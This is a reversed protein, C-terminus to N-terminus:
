LEGELGIAFPIGESALAEALKERREASLRRSIAIRDAGSMRCIKPLDGRFGTTVLLILKGGSVRAIATRIDNDSLQRWDANLLVVESGPTTWRKGDARFYPHRLRSVVRVSDVGRRSYYKDLRFSTREILSQHYKEPADTVFWVERGDRLLLTTAYYDYIAYSETDREGDPILLAVIVAVVAVVAVFGAGIAPLLRRQEWALWLLILALFYPVLWWASFYLGKVSSFGLDGVWQATATMVDYIANLTGALWAAHIGAVAFAMKLMGLGM